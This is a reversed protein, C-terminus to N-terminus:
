AKPSASIGPKALLLGARGGAYDIFFEGGGFEGFPAIAVTGRDDQYLGELSAPTALLSM